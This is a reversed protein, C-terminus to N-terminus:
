ADSAKKAEVDDPFAFFKLRNWIYTLLRRAKKREASDITAHYAARTRDDFSSVILSRFRHANFLLVQFTGTAAKVHAAAEAYHTNATQQARAARKIAPRCKELEDEPVPASM